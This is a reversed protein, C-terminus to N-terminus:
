ISTSIAAARPDLARLPATQIRWRKMWLFLLMVGWLHYGLNARREMHLRMCAEIAGPHFLGPHERVGDALTEELLPRLPGRLWQHAPIDFGTKTRRVVSQPLRGKMLEKLVIKQRAGRMKLRAPLTAAFEVIRHDLFPPRVEISHAMSVRDVKMLIDDPLYYRQDFWLYASLDEGAAPLEDLIADLAGPSPECLLSRKQAASFTGNWYVHARSAPMRCGETFRKLMYEFGIKEDSV